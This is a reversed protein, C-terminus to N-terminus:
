SSKLVCVSALDVPGADHNRLGHEAALHRLQDKRPIRAECTTVPCPGPAYHCAAAHCRVMFRLDRVGCGWECYVEAFECEAEHKM